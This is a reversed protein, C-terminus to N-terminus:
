NAVCEFDVARSAVCLFCDATHGVVKVLVVRVKDGATFARRSSLRPRRDLQLPPRPMLYVQPTSNSNEHCDESDCVIM